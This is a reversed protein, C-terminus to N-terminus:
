PQGDGVFFVGLAIRAQQLAQVAGAGAAAATALGHRRRLHLSAAAAFVADREEEYVAQNCAARCASRRMWCVNYDGAQRAIIVQGIVPDGAIQHLFQRLSLTSLQDLTIQLLRSGFRDRSFRLLEVADDSM